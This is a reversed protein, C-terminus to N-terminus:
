EGLFTDDARSERGETVDIEQLCYNLVSTCKETTRGDDTTIICCYMPEPFYADCAKRM